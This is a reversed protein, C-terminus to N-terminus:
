AIASPRAAAISHHHRNNYQIYPFIFNTTELPHTQVTQHSHFALVNTILPILPLHILTLTNPLTTHPQPSYTDIPTSRRSHYNRRHHHM